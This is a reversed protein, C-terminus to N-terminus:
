RATVLKEMAFAITERPGSWPLVFVIYTLFFVALALVIGDAAGPGSLLRTGYACVAALLAAVVPPLAASFVQRAKLATPRCAYLVAPVTLAAITITYALAVGTPGFPLGILFSLCILASSVLGWKFMRDTRGSSIHIWPITNYLCQAMGSIALYRFIEVAGTWQDGLFLPIIVDAFVFCFSSLPAGVLMVAMASRCYARAWKRGDDQIHSLAPAMVRWVPVNIKQVTLLLLKYARDYLAVASPGWWWGILVNDVNRAFYNLMTFGTVHGGFSLLSSLGSVRSPWGPRWRCFAWSLATTLATAALANAVLAWYGYGRAALLLAVVVGGAAASVDIVVLARFRMQRQLLARHQVALGAMLFASALAVTIGTLRPEGYFWAVAPALAVVAAALVAGAAANVWFLANVQADTIDKRQITAMALGLDTFLVALGALAWVMALLGFAEPVLMRALVAISGLNIVIKAIEGAIVLAGGHAARRGVDARLDDVDLSYGGRM